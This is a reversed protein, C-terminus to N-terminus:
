KTQGMTQFIILYGCTCSVSLITINAIGGLSHSTVDSIALFRHSKTDIDAIYAIILQNTEIIVIINTDDKDGYRYQSCM